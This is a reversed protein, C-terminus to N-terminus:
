DSRNLLKNTPQNSSNILQKIKSQDMQEEKVATGVFRLDVPAWSLCGFAWITHM